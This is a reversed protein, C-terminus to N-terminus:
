GRKAVFRRLEDLSGSNVVESPEVWARQANAVGFRMNDLEAASHADTSIAFRVGVRRAVRIHEDKLDLRYPHGNIEVAVGNRKAVEFVAELDVDIPGRKDLRRATPHGWVNVLPHELARVVRRTMRDRDQRLSHHISAVRIDFGELVDDPYDLDGDPGINLEVGHLVTIPLEANLRAIEERQADIDPLSLTRMMGGLRRAHDTVAYYDYGREVAAEVMRRLPLKGDSYTSHTQLDGRIDGLEIVRPLEGRLAAEVEGTDERLTPLIYPMGLAAYVDEETAGAIRTDDSTFLGYESLKLKKRVAHERVKVNHSKSGTFYQMASGFEDPAVVRLDVQLGLASVVSTKTPGTAETKVVGPLARFADAVADREDSAVLIDIDGITERMRRLSGAFACDSVIPASRLADVMPEAVRLGEVLLVRREALEEIPRALAEVIAEEAKPGLGPVDRLRGAQAAALLAEPTTVGLHRHILAARKPGVGPLRTFTRVGDPVAARLEELTEIKGTTLFETIKAGVGKGVGRLSLLEREDLGAVDTALIAIAEAARRYATLRFRDAGRLELLDAIEDLLGAVTENTTAM